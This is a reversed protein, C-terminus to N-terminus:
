VCYFATEASMGWALGAAKINPCSINLEIMDVDTQDLLRAGEVYSAIDSGALNAIVVPGLGLMGPLLDRIFTPIGPNQLGISNMNGGAVELSREGHNGERPGFAFTGGSAIVPNGFRVGAIEVSLDPEEGQPLPSRRPEPKPFDLIRSDFVPGDKCCRKLGESTEITCGLCAGLGCLMRHEMSIYCPIGAEESVTKVYSLAPAPGCAYVATYGAEKIAERSLAAPLM